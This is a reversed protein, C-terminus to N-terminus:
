AAEVEKIYFANPHTGMKRRRENFESIALSKAEEFSTGDPIDDLGVEESKDEWKPGLGIRSRYRIILIYMM